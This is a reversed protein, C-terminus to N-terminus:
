MAEEPNTADTSRRGGRAVARRGGVRRDPRHAVSIVSGHAPADRVASQWHASRELTSLTDVVDYSQVFQEGMYLRLTSSIETEEYECRWECYRWLVIAGRDTTDDM